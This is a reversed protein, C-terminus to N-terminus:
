TVTSYLKCQKVPICTVGVDEVHGCNHNGFGSHSCALLNTESGSCNVGDLLIPGKGAPVYHDTITSGYKFGLQSCVVQTNTDTWNKDCVTSWIGNHYMEVRGSFPILPSDGDVLRIPLATIVFFQFYYGYCAQM